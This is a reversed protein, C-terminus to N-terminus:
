RGRRCCRPRDVLAALDDTFLTAITTLASGLGLATAALEPDHGSFVKRDAHAQLWLQETFRREEWTFDFGM